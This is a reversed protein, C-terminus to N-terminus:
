VYMYMYQYPISLLVFSKKKRKKEKKKKSIGNVSSNYFLKKMVSVHDHSTCVGNIYHICDTNGRKDKEKTPVFGVKGEYTPSYGRLRQEAPGRTTITGGLVSVGDAMSAAYEARWEEKYVVFACHRCCNLSYTSFSIQYFSLFNLFTELYNSWKLSFIEHTQVCTEYKLARLGVLYSQHDNYVGHVM